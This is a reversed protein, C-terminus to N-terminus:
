KLSAKIDKILLDYNKIAAPYLFPRPRIGNILISRAIPYAAKEDIGKRKCWSMISLVMDKFKGSGSPGRTTAALAQWDDPLSSVYSSAFKRTGFEIYAAYRTSAIVSAGGQGYVPFISRLLNGEDSSNSAVLQKANTATRDAWDNLAAQINGQSKAGLEDFKKIITDIGQVKISIM